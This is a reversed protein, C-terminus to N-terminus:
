DPPIEHSRQTLFFINVEKSKEDLKKRGFARVESGRAPAPCGTGAAATHM